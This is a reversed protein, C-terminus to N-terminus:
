EAPTPVPRPVPAVWDPDAYITNNTEDFCDRGIEIKLKKDFPITAVAFNNINLNSTECHDELWWQPTPKDGTSCDHRLQSIYKTQKNYIVIFM